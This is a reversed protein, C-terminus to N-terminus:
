NSNRYEDTIMFESFRIIITSEPDHQSLKIYEDEEDHDNYPVLDGDDNFSGHHVTYEKAQSKDVCNIGGILTVDSDHMVEFVNFSATNCLPSTFQIM